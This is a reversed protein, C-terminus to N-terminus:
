LNLTAIEEFDDCVSSFVDVLLPDFHVGSAGLIFSKAMDPPMAKKYPRPSIIADYVDAIAMLRGQLPIAEGSLGCPYGSADWKEHHYGAFLRAHFFYNNKETDREIRDIIQVGLTTHKKMIEFEEPTLKGPKNLIADSIAIKGIDHLQASPILLAMDWGKMESQYVGGEIMKDVLIKLYKQTREIHRGTVDDRFEVMESLINLIREHTKVIYATKAEVKAELDKNYSELEKRQSAILLHNEIRKLLISPTFPKAIYDIAGLSLGELESAEDERATLFIVPIGAFRADSKLLKIAEYGSMEPMEIDLLILDPLVTELLEFLYKASPLTYLDYREKLISRSLTLNSLNDDVVVITRQTM